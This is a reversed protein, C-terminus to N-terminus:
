TKPRRGKTSRPPRDPKSTARKGRKQKDVLAHIASAMADRVDDNLQLWERGLEAAEPTLGRGYTTADSERAGDPAPLSEPGQGHELWGVSCRLESAILHLKTSSNQHGNEIDYITSPALRSARALDRVSLGIHRRRKRIRDGITDVNTNSRFETVSHRQLWSVSHRLM